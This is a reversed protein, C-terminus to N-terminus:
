QDNLGGKVANRYGSGDSFDPWSLDKQSIVSVPLPWHIGFVPDNYRFGKSLDPHYFESCLYLVETDDQLTQFGHAFGEPIFIMQYSSATLEVCFWKLYHSSDERLDIVVDHIAGRVVRVVKAEAAPAIQFHMGRLTGRERNTSINIQAIRNTLRQQGVENECWARAFFGREDERPEIDMLTVGPFDTPTFKM